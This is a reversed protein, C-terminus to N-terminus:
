GCAKKVFGRFNKEVLKRSVMVQRGCGTCKLRFDMGVRLIEWENSGCPHPKKMKIVDGIQFEM